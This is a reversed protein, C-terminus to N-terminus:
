RINEDSRENDRPAAGMWLTLSREQVHPVAHCIKVQRFTSGDSCGYSVPRISIWAPAWVIKLGALEYASMRECIEM